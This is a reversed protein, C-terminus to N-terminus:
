LDLDPLDSENEHDVRKPKERSLPTLGLEIALSRCKAMSDFQVRLAASAMKRGQYEGFLGQERIAKQADRMHGYAVCYAELTSMDADTFTGRQRLLPLVRKYEAKASASMWQPPRCRRNKRQEVM